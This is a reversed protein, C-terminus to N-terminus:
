AALRLACAQLAGGRRRGARRAAPNLRRPRHVAVHRRRRGAPESAPVPADPPTPSAGRREPASRRARADRAVSRDPARRAVAQETARVGPDGRRSRRLRRPTADFRAAARRRVPRASGAPAHLRDSRGNRPQRRCRRCARRTRRGRPRSARRPVRVGLRRRPRRAARWAIRPARGRPRGDAVCREFEALDTWVLSDGALGVEDRSAILYQESGPGLARRLASLASRLSTRASEDLVDPWFRAGLASRPHM